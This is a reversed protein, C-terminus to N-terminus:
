NYTNTNMNNKNLLAILLTQLSQLKLNFASFNPLWQQIDGTREPAEGACLYLCLYAAAPFPFCLQNEEVQAFVTEGKDHVANYLFLDVM